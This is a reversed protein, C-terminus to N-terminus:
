DIIEVEPLLAKYPCSYRKERCKNMLYKGIRQEWVRKTYHGNSDKKVWYEDILNFVLFNFINLSNKDVKVKRWFFIIVPFDRKELARKFRQIKPCILANNEVICENNYLGCLYRCFRIGEHYFTEFESFPCKIFLKEIIKM